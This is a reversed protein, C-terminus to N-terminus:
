NAGKKGIQSLYIFPLILIFLHIFPEIGSKMHPVVIYLDGITFSLILLFTCIRQIQLSFVMQILGILSYFLLSFIFKAIEWTTKFTFEIAFVM